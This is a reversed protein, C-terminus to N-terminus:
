SSLSHDGEAQKLKLVQPAAVVDGAIVSWSALFRTDPKLPTAMLSSFAFFVDFVPLTLPFV